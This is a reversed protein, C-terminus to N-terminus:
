PEARKEAAEQLQGEVKQAKELADLQYQPIVGGAQDAQEEAAASPQSQAQEDAGCGVMLVLAPYLFFSARM